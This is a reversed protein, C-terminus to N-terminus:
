LAQAFQAATDDIQGAPPASVDIRSGFDYLYITVQLENPTSPALTTAAPPPPLTIISRAPLPVTLTLQRIWGQSDVWIQAAMTSQHTQAELNSIAATDAPELDAARALDVTAQYEITSVGDLSQPGVEDVSRPSVADLYSLYQTFMVASASVQRLNSGITGESAQDLHVELWSTRATLQSTESPPPQVYVSPRVLRVPFDGLGDISFTFSGLSGDFTVGGLMSVDLPRLTPGMSEFVRIQASKAALTRAYAHRINNDSTPRPPGFTTTTGAGPTPGAGTSSAPQSRSYAFLTLGLAAVVCAVVTVRDRARAM